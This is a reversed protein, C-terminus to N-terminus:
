DQLPSRRRRRLLMLGMCIGAVGSMGPEPVSSANLRVNDFDVELDANPASADVVNLNVLRIQLAQGLQAHAAGTSFSVNTTAFEGEAISGALSNNDQALLVGGALLDVRYGPFGSIDFFTGNQATGSAINGIEVDLSYTMNAQLTASLTQQMGYEGLGGSGFYNFAIGVRQGEPAGSTFFTPATPTLTGIFFTGGEGGATIAGPDYLDWGNLPGFTFENFPSEGSIDEFGPNVVTIAAGYGTSTSIFLGWILAAPAILRTLSNLMGDEFEAITQEARLHRIISLAPGSRRFQLQTVQGRRTVRTLQRQKM